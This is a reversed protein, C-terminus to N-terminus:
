CARISSYHLRVYFVLAAQKNLSFILSCSQVSGEPRKDMTKVLRCFRETDLGHVAQAWLSWCCLTFHTSTRVANFTGAGHDLQLRQGVALIGQHVQVRKSTWAMTTSPISHTSVASTGAVAGVVTSTVSTGAGAGVVTSTVSTGAM